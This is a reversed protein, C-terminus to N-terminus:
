RLTPRPGLIASGVRLHTAGSTVAAELDGSMGASIVDAQPAYGRVTDLLDALPAFARVPDAGLPAVAMVGRLRLHERTAVDEALGPLDAVPVGGRSPNGDLSVQLLCDLVRVRRSAAQELARVLSPRDLSHVLDAYGAVSRAKNSQLRGIFHWRLGLGACAEYKPAAEQDRNEGVDPVGLAALLAVDSAPYTKTVVVLTLEALDRGAEAAAAAMRERVRALGRAIETRRPEAADTAAATV